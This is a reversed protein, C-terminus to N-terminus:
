PGDWRGFVLAANCGGFALNLSIGVRFDGDRGEVVLDVPTEPDVAGEGPTAPLHRDVLCLVTAVAEIAGASGLLHGVSAKNATVPVRESRSGLVTRLAGAEAVDNLPTGTGHANVFDVSGPDVGADRLAAALAEAAGRGDPEPATMHHADASAGAGLLEALPRAGRGRASDLTELVLAAGGEGLSLGERDARFPRSPAPDVSRLANFGGYTVRCLSDAGGVLALDVDGARLADLAIGIALTTSACASSVTQVPGCIRFARAVADGPGSVEQSALRRLSMRDRPERRLDAYFEESEFM